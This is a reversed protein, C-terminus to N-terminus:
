YGAQPANTDAQVRDRGGARPPVLGMSVRARREDSPVDRVACFCAHWAACMADADDYGRRTKELACAAAPPALVCASLIETRSDKPRATRFVIFDDLAQPDLRRNPDFHARRNSSGRPPASVGGRRSFFSFLRSAPTARDRRTAAQHLHQGRGAVPGVGACRARVRSKIISVGRPAVRARLVCACVCVRVFACVCACVM